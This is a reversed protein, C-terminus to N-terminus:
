GDKLAEGTGRYTWQRSWGNELEAHVHLTYGEPLIKPLNVHCGNPDDDGFGGSNGCASLNIWLAMEKTQTNRMYAAAGGEIHWSTAMGRTRWEDKLDPTTYVRDGKLAKLPQGLVPKGSSDYLMGRASTKGDVRKPWGFRRIAASREPSRARPNFATAARDGTTQTESPPTFRSGGAISAVYSGMRETGNLILALVEALRERAASWQALAERPLPNSSAELDAQLPALADGIREDAAKVTRAAEETMAIAARLAAAVDGISVM